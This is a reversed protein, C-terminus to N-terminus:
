NRRWEALGHYVTFITKLTNLTSTTAVTLLQSKCPTPDRYGGFPSPTATALMQMAGESFPPPVESMLQDALNDLSYGSEVSLIAVDATMENSVSVLNNNATGSCDNSRASSACLPLCSGAASRGRSLPMTDGDIEMPGSESPASSLRTTTSAPHHDVGRTVRLRNDAEMNPMVEELYTLGRHTQTMASDITARTKIM